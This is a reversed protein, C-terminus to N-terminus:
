HMRPFLLTLNLRVIWQPAGDPRKLLGYTGVQLSFDQSGVNFVRGVDAGMPITWAKASDATWDYTMPPDCQVYWGSEFNYSIEPELYTQNVSGRDRNGAFSMLQYALIGGFWPGESYILAATPGASWRGTGLEPSSATPLQFIPGVGWIWTTAKAPTLFFSTQLDALGFQEHPSPLYTVTLSPRAILDWQANLSFPVLPQINFSDGANHHPGLEFGTASQISLKVFDEFPNHVSKALDQATIISTPPQVPPPADQAHASVALATSLLMLMRLGKKL